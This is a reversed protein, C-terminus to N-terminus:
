KKAFIQKESYIEDCKIDHKEQIFKDSVLASPIVIIKKAGPNYKAFFKDYCGKGRGLRYKEFNAYLAPVYIIDLIDPNVSKTNPYMIGYKDKIFDCDDTYACFVMDSLICKPFYFTKDKIKLLPLLNIEGRLPYYIAVHKSNKFEFSNIIKQVIIESIKNTQKTNSLIERQKLAYKRLENKNNILNLM